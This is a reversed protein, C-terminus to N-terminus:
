QLIFDLCSLVCLRLFYKSFQVLELPFMLLWQFVIFIDVFLEMFTESDYILFTVFFIVSERFINRQTEIEPLKGVQKDKSPHRISPSFCPNIIWYLYMGFELSIAKLSSVLDISMSICFSRAIMYSISNYVCHNGNQLYALFMLVTSLALFTTWTLTSGGKTESRSTKMWPIPISLSLSSPDITIM